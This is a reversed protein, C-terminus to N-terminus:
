VTLDFATVLGAAATFSFGIGNLGKLTQYRSAVASPSQVEATRTTTKPTRATPTM